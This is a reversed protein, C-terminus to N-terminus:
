KLGASIGVVPRRAKGRQVRNGPHAFRDTAVAIRRRIPRSVEIAQFDDPLEDIAQEVFRQMQRQAMTREPDIQHQLPFAIVQSESQTNEMPLDIQRACQNGPPSASEAFRISQGKRTVIIIKEYM